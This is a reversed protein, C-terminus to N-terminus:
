LKHGTGQIEYEQLSGSSKSTCKYAYFNTTRKDQLVLIFPGSPTVKSDCQPLEGELMSIRGTIAKHRFSAQNRMDFSRASVDNIEVILNYSVKAINNGDRLVHGTGKLKELVKHGRRHLTM